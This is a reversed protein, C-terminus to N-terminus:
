QCREAFWFTALMLHQQGTRLLLHKWRSWGLLIFSRIAPWTIVASGIEIWLAFDDDWGVGLAGVFCVHPSQMWSCADAQYFSMLIWPLSLDCLGGLLWWDTVTVTVIEWRINRRLDRWFQCPRLLALHVDHPIQTFGPFHEVFWIPVNHDTLELQKSEELSYLLVSLFLWALPLIWDGILRDCNVDVCLSLLAVASFGGQGQNFLTGKRLLFRWVM